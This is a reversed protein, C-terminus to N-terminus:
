VGGACGVRITLICAQPREGTACKQWGGFPSKRVYECTYGGGSLLEVRPAGLNLDNVRVPVLLRVGPADTKNQEDM